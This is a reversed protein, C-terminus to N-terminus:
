AGVLESCPANWKIFIAFLDESSTAFNKYRPVVNVSWFQM